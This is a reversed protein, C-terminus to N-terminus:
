VIRAPGAERPIKEKQFVRIPYVFAVPRLRDEHSRGRAVLTNREWRSTSTSMVEHLCGDCMVLLSRVGNQRIHALHMPDILDRVHSCSM